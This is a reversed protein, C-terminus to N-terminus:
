LITDVQSLELRAAGLRTTRLTKKQKSGESTLNGDRDILSPQLCEIGQQRAELASDFDSNETNGQVREMYSKRYKFAIFHLDLLNKQENFMAAGAVIPMHSKGARNTAFFYELIHSNRYYDM